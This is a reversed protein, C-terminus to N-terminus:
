CAPSPGPDSSNPSAGGGNPLPLTARIATRAAIAQSFQRASRVPGSPRRAGNSRLPVRSESWGRLTAVMAVAAFFLTGPDAGGGSLSASLISALAAARLARALAVAPALGPTPAMGSFGRLLFAALAGLMLSGPLGLQSLVSVVLSSSRSSGIGGGLWYTDTFVQMSRANWEAREIASASTSKELVLSRFLEIFPDLLRENALEIAIIATVAILAFAVVVADRREIRDLVTSVALSVFLAAAMIGLAVYATTSTSLLLMAFQGLALVLALRSGTARWYTFSFALCILGASAYASAESYGGAIRWFGMVETQTHMVYNATRIGALVDGAGALKGGLDILGLSLHLTAFVFLGRRVLRLNAPDALVRSFAFFAAISLAFYGAQTINSSSPGLPIEAIESRVPVFTSTVGAFLRPMIFAGAVVYVVLALGLVHVWHWRFPPPVAPGSGFTVWAILLLAFLTGVPPSAGGLGSLAIVATAGFPLAAFFGVIPASGLRWGLMYLAIAVGLGAISLEM